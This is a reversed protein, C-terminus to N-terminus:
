SLSSSIFTIKGQQHLTPSRLDQSMIGRWCPIYGPFWLWLIVREYCHIVSDSEQLYISTNSIKSPLLLIIHKSPLQSLIFNVKRTFIQTLLQPHTRVSHHLRHTIIDVRQYWCKVSIYLTWMYFSYFLSFLRNYLQCLDAYDVMVMLVISKLIFWWRVFVIRTVFWETWRFVSPPLLDHRIFESM